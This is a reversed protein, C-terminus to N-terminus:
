AGVVYACGDIDVTVVRANGFTAGTDAYHFDGRRYPNYAVRRAGDCVPVVGDPMLTGVIWAHVERHGKAGKGDGPNAPAAVIRDRTSSRVYATCGTLTASDGEAVKKGKDPGALARFSWQRAPDKTGLNRYAGVPIGYPNRGDIAKFM